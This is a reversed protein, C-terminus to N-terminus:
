RGHGGPHAALVALASEVDPHLERDRLDPDLGSAAAFLVRTGAGRPERGGLRLARVAVVLETAVLVRLPTLADELRRAAVPALSAHSEVGRAVSVTQASVPAVLSRVEAAADHATYELMMAGSDPGPDRALFPPLDTLAADLLTSVRAAILSASQALAGRLGDLAVALRAAYPNGNPLAEPPEAIILANEGAVNLEGTVAEELASLAERTVGDVQPVVRFAYPDQGLVYGPGRERAWAGELLERMQAAVAAQGPGRGRAHLREDLVVPDAGAAEFSLAAVALWCDLLAAVDVALLAAHGATVANSSIFGLGDRPGLAIEGVLALAIECLATLDGTGLSGYAHVSPTVGDNLAQVVADLLAPTVGAGGAGIQNARAAMAARVVDDGLLPGAGAAHSRLLRLAQGDGVVDRGSLAGVGTSAGYLPEGRALLEAVARAAAANRERAAPDLRVDEHGRAVRALAAPTLSIGDLTVVAAVIHRRRAIADHGYAPM